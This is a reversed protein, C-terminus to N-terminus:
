QVDIEEEPIFIKGDYYLSATFTYGGEPKDSGGNDGGGETSGGPRQIAPNYEGCSSFCLMLVLLIAILQRLKKM